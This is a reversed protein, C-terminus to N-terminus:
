LINFINYEGTSIIKDAIRRRTDKINIPNIKTFRRLGIIMMNLEDSSVFNNLCEKGSNSINVCSDYLFSKMIDFYISEDDKNYRKIIKESRLLVSEAAYLNIIMDAINM